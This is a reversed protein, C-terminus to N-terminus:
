TFLKDFHNLFKFIHMGWVKIVSTNMVTNGLIAFYSPFFLGWQKFLALLIFNGGFNELLSRSMRPHSDSFTKTSHCVFSCCFRLWVYAHGHDAPFLRKPPAQEAARPTGGPTRVRHSVAWGWVIPESEKVM